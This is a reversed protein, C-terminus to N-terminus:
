SRPTALATALPGALRATAVPDVEMQVFPDWRCLLDRRVEVCLVRGPWREAHHFAQTSPHLPYTRGDAVAVGLAAFDVTLRALVAHPVLLTGDLARCIVDVEPRLPWTPAVEPSWAHRLNAAVDMDVEVDVSRPAYTHLLLARGEVADVLATAASVYASHLDRLLVLDDPDHIWPPVGPTVRGERFAAPDADIVRNVDIFTRPIRAVLVAVIATPDVAVVQAAVAEALEPAGADTNVHFFDVLDLPGPDRLAARLAQYDATRTAGHPVEVLHTPRDGTAAAGHHLRLTHSGPLM